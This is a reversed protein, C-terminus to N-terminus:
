RSCCASSSDYPPRHTFKTRMNLAVLEGNDLTSYVNNWDATVGEYSSIDRAWLVQGSEAALSAVDGGEAVAQFYQELLQQEEVSTWGPAAPGVVVLQLEDDGVACALPNAMFTPGHMFLGPEGGQITGAIEESALTAGFSM